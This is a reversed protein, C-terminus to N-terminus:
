KFTYGVSIGLRNNWNVRFPNQHPYDFYFSSKSDLVSIGTSVPTLVFKFFIGGTNKQFRYAIKPTFYFYNTKIMKYNYGYDIWDNSKYISEYLYTLGLGMEFKHSKAGFLFNYSGHTGLVFYRSIPLLTIGGSVSTNIKKNTQLLRDYSFSIYKTQGLVDMYFSNKKPEIKKASEQAYVLTQVLCVVLIIITKKMAPPKFVSSLLNISFFL